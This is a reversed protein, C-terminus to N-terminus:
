FLYGTLFVVRKGSKIMAALRSILAANSEEVDSIETKVYTPM